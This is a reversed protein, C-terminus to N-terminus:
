EVSLEVPKLPSSTTWGGTERKSFLCFKYASGGAISSALAPFEADNKIELWYVFSDRTGHSHMTELLVEGNLSALKEPGFKNRFTAYYTALQQRSPLKGASELEQYTAKLEQMVRTDISLATIWSSVM